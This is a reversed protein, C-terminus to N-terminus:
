PKTKSISSTEIDTFALPKPKARVKLYADRQASTLIRGTEAHAILYATRLEVRVREAERLAASWKATDPLGAAFAAAITTEAADIRPELLVRRSKLRTAIDSLATSQRADLSLEGAFFLAQAPSPFGADQAAQAYTVAERENREASAQAPTRAPASAVAKSAKADVPKAVAQAAALPKVNLKAPNAATGADQAMASGAAVLFCAAFPIARTKSM